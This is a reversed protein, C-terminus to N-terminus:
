SLLAEGKAKGALGGKEWVLVGLRTAKSTTGKLPTTRCMYVYM